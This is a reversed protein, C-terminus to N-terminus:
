RSPFIQPLREDKLMSINGTEKTRVDKSIKSM